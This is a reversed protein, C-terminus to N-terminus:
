KVKVGDRILQKMGTKIEQLSEASSGTNIEIRRLHEQAASMRVAVDEVRDDISAWHMQGSVFLGELKTAQDQSMTTFAGSKGSQATGGAKDTEKIIGENRLQEIDNKASNVYDEYQKKLADLRAKYEADTLEGNTRAKNLKALQEYWAELNKQLKPYFLSLGKYLPVKHSQSIKPYRNPLREM